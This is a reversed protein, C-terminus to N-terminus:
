RIHTNNSMRKADLEIFKVGNLCQLINYGLCECTVRICLWFKGDILVISLPPVVYLSFRVFDRLPQLPSRGVGAWGLEFKQNRGHSGIFLNRQVTVKDERFICGSTWSAEKQGVMAADKLM